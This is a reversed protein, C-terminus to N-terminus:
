IQPFDHTEELEENKVGEKEEFQVRQSMIQAQQDEIVIPNKSNEHSMPQHDITTEIYKLSELREEQEEEENIPPSIEQMSESIDENEDMEAQSGFANTM